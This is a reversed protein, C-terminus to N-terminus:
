ADLVVDGTPVAQCTLCADQADPPETLHAVSGSVVRVACSECQGVRCGSPLRLGNRQALDLLPGDQPRWLLTTGSARFTVSHRADGEPLALPPPAFREAFIEFRPVGRAVLGETVERIMSDPGCLYFRAREEVDRQDVAEASVRGAHEYDRGPRDGPGPRSFHRVLRLRPIEGALRETRSRFCCDAGGRDGKHVTIREGEPHHRAITELQSLFPTIGVGAALVVVPFPPDVPLTFAGSPPGLTVTDGERLATHVRTSAAGGPLLRVAVSREGGAAGTLSYPRVVEGEDRVGALTLEVYQGPRHPAVPGGDAPRLRLETVDRGRPTMELVTFPRAGGPLRSPPAPEDAAVDCAVGRMQLSGSVPDAPRGSVAANFNTGGGVPDAGPLGLEPSEEWWGYEAVVVRPDLDESLVARMRFSGRDTTVRVLDGAAFGRSRALGPAVEVTPEPHRRRLSPLARHQSHCYYGNKASTLLLPLSDGAPEGADPVGSQGARALRASYLEVRRSPTAFGTVHGHEDREAYKRYVTRLPVRVGGPAQRLERTTLGTPELVHNWAAEIDGGFFDDGMGMRCALDFVIETDSRSAGVPDVMRQRLQVLEQARRDIEFGTKLAEREWPSGVPLVIDAHRATPNLFLDCHVFFDLARLADRGREPDPQSVLLNAGFSMLARVRYPVHDLMATYLDHGTVWGTAPPGLPRQALGLTKARQGPAMQDLSTVARVPVKPLVVNGGPADYCGKLAYLTAIARETQTANGHQGVGTWSHYAVSRATAFEEAFARLEEEPIWTHRATREPTWPECAGAYLEFAPRVTVPRGGHPTVTFEGRLALDEPREAPLRTDYRRPRGTATDWVTFGEPAAPDLEPATLPEGTDDRILLPGNTWSRVFEEDYGGSHLLHRAVGLALAADAGPRVRLWHDADRASTSRRPDVVALRAGRDRGERVAVAQALWTKAPNHGWLVALDTGAYDATPQGSGFTFAHAFDKHWNCIETSYCTNSAGLLRIFREVWDISDSMPTGSPSTVAFGIAEAGDEDRVASLREAIESMAEDWSIEEWGPDEADKPNSRRLPATLRRTSHAIEPAARGKPCLATGTPHGPDPAVGTIRGDEVTYVAGCRSRCLTCYGRKKQASM